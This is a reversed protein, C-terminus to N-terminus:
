TAIFSDSPRPLRDDESAASDLTEDVGEDANGDGEGEDAKNALARGAFVASVSDSSCESTSWDGDGLMVRASVAGAPSNRGEDGDSLFEQSSERMEGKILM